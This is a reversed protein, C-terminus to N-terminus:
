SAKLQQLAKEQMLKYAAMFESHVEKQSLNLAAAISAFSHKEKCRLELIRAQEATMVGQVKMELAPRKKAEPTSGQNIINKIDQIASKVENSTETIGTGMVASIAKYQFGYKLCLEILHRREPNLLPLVSKIRDFSKQDHEQDQLSESDKVPDYGVMYDQYNEYSELSNLQRLFKNKPRCYFTNCERTMVFRLFNFIHQPSEISDRNDWLKLFTDQVLNEVVFSDKILRKGIWFIRRSHKAHIDALASADGKKLQEFHNHSM